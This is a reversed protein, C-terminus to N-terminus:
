KIKGEEKGERGRGPDCERERERKRDRNRGQPTRVHRRKTCHKHARAYVCKYIYICMYMCLMNMCIYLGDRIYMHMCMYMCIYTCIYLHPYIYVHIYICVFYSGKARGQLSMQTNVSSQGSNDRQKRGCTKTHTRTRLLKNQPMQTPIVPEPHASASACFPVSKTLIRIISIKPLASPNNPTITPMIM